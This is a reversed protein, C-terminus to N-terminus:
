RRMARRRAFWGITGVGCVLLIFSAPEPAPSTSAPTNGVGASISISYDQPDTVSSAIQFTPDIYAVASADTAIYNGNADYGSSSSYSVGQLVVEYLTNTQATWIGSDTLNVSGGTYVFPAQVGRLTTSSSGSGGVVMEDDLLYSGGTTGNAIGFGATIDSNRGTVTASLLANVTIPVPGSPGSFEIYYRIGLSSQAINVFNNTNDPRATVSDSYSLTPFPQTSASATATGINSKSASASATGQTNLTQSETFAETLGGSGTAYGDVSASEGVYAAPLTLTSASVPSAMVMFGAIFALCSLKRDKKM